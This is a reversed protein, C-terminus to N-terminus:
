RLEDVQNAPGFVNADKAELRIWRLTMAANDGFCKAFSDAGGDGVKVRSGLGLLRTASYGLRRAARM